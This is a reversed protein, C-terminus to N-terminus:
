ITCCMKESKGSLPVINRVRAIQVCHQRRYLALRLTANVTNFLISWVKAGDIIHQVNYEQGWASCKAIDYM